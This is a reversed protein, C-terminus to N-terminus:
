EPSARASSFFTKMAPLGLGASWRSFSMLGSFGTPATDDSAKATNEISKAFAIGAGTAKWADSKLNESFDDEKKYSYLVTGELDVILRDSFATD